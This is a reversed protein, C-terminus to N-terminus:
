VGKSLKLTVYGYGTSSVYVGDYGVIDDHLTVSSSKEVVSVTRGRFDQPIPLAKMTVAVHTDYVVFVDGNDVYWTFATCDSVLTYDFMARYAAFSLGTGRTLINGAFQNGLVAKPYMKKSTHVFGAESANARLERVTRGRTRSYGLIQGFRNVGGQRVIQVFKDPADDPYLWTSPTLIIGASLTGSIDAVNAVDYTVGGAVVPKVKSIYQHLTNGTYTLVSAQHIGAFTLLVDQLALLNTTINCSGNFAYEYRVQVRMDAAISNVAFPQETATGVRGRLYTAIATPNMINYVNDITLYDCKYIGDATIAESGNLMALKVQNNLACTLQNITCSTIVVNSTSGGSQHVLTGSIATTVHKWTSTTSINDSIFWLTNADVVRMLTYDIANNNFVSGVDAATKGHGTSVVQQVIFAGHNAGIYTGNYHVPTSDDGSNVLVQGTAFASAIASDATSVPITRVSWSNIINNAWVNTDTHKIQHVMDVLANLQTRLYYYTSDKVVTIRGKANTLAAIDPLSTAKLKYVLGGVSPPVFDTKNSGLELQSHSIVYDFQAVTHSVYKIMYAVYTVRSGVPVTFTVTKNVDKYTCVPCDTTNIVEGSSPVTHELGLFNGAAGYTYMNPNFEFAGDTPLSWTYTKGAEVKQLGLSAGTAFAVQLGTQYSLLVADKPTTTDYINKSIVKDFTSDRFGELANVKKELDTVRQSDNSTPHQYVTSSGISIFPQSVKYERIGSTTLLHVALRITATNAPIPDVATDVTITFLRSTFAAGLGTAINKSGLLGGAADYYQLGVLGDSGANAEEVLVSVSIKGSTFLTPSFHWKVMAAQATGTSNLSKVYLKKIGAATVVSTNTLVENPMTNFKVQDLTFLNPTFTRAVEVKSLASDTYKVADQYASYGLVWATGTYYWEGNNAAIPDSMVKAVNGKVPSPIADLEAKNAVAGVFGGAVAAVKNDVYTVDAKQEQLALVAQQSGKKALEVNVYDLNAKQAALADTDNELKLLRADTSRNKVRQSDGTETIVMNDSIGDFLNPNTMGFVGDVYEKLEQFNQEQFEELTIFTDARLKIFQDRVEQQSHRLQEFNADVNAADFVAGATFTYLNEDIDTERYIRVVGSEVAPQIEMTSSNKLRLAYGAELADVDNVLVRVADVGETYEFGFAFDTTPTTVTYETYSQKTNMDM